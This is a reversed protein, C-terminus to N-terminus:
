RRAFAAVIAIGLIVATPCLSRKVPTENEKTIVLDYETEQDNIMINIPINYIMGSQLYGANIKYEFVKTEKPKLYVITREGKGADLPITLEYTVFVPTNMTNKLSIMLLENKEDFSYTASALKDNSKSSSLVSVEEVTEFDLKKNSTIKDFIEGQDKGRYMILHTNDLFQAEGFTPDIPIWYNGVLVEVWAHPQWEKGYVYGSVYRTDLGISRLMAILLHSYEVCVGRKDQFTQTAPINEGFYSIDYTIYKNVWNTIEAVTHYASNEEALEIAKSNIENDYAAYGDTVIGILSVEHDEPLIPAYLVDVVVKATIEKNEDKMTGNYKVKIVGAEDTFTAGDSVQIDVVKQYTNNVIFIGDLEITTGGVGTIMWTKEFSLTSPGYFNSYVLSIMLILMTLQKKM